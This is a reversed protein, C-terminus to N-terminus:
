YPILRRRQWTKNIEFEPKDIVSSYVEQGLLNNIIITYNTITENGFDITFKDKAPNPFLKIENLFHQTNSLSDDTKIDDLWGYIIGSNGTPRNASNVTIRLKLNAKKASSPLTITINRWINITTYTWVYSLNSWGPVSVSTNWYELIIPQYDAPYNIRVNLSISNSLTTNINDIM